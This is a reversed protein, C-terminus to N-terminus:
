AQTAANAQPRLSHQPREDLEAVLV